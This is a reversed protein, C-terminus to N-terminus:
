QLGCGGTVTCIVTNVYAIDTVGDSSRKASLRWNITQDEGAAVFFTANQTTAWQAWTQGGNTSKDWKWNSANYNASGTLNYTGKVNVSGPASASVAFPAPPPPPPPSANERWVLNAVGNRYTGRVVANNLSILDSPHKPNWVAKTVNLGLYDDGSGITQILGLTGLPLAALFAWESGNEINDFDVTVWAAGGVVIEITALVYDDWKEKDTNIICPDTDDEWFDFSFRVKDWPTGPPYKSKISALKASDAILVNGTWHNADMNFYRPNGSGAVVHEGACDLKAFTMTDTVPGLLMVEIEPAGRPWGEGDDSVSLSTLYIGPVTAASALEQHPAMQVSAVAGSACSSSSKTFDTEAPVLSLAPTAPAVEPSINSVARGQLDFAVLPENDRLSTVVIVDSGGKWKDWHEAVPMYLELGPTNDRLQALSAATAGQGSEAAMKSLLQAGPGDTFKTFDLKREEICSTLISGHVLARTPGDQLALAVLKTLESLRARADEETIMAGNAARVSKMQVSTPAPDSPKQADWNCSWGMAVCLAVWYGVGGLPRLRKVSRPVM